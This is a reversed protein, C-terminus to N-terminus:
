LKFLKKANLYMLKEYSEESILNKLENFYPIYMSPQGVRNQAYTDKGDIPNESGFIIRDANVEKIFKITNEVPVWATDGYLNPLSGILEIAESNDTGLGMHGMIFNVNPYRKAMNYVRRCSAEDSGGTHSIIPLSFEEALEVYGVM